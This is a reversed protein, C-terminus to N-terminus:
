EVDLGAAGAAAAALIAPDVGDESAEDGVPEPNLDVYESEM